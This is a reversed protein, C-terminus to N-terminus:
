TDTIAKLDEFLASIAAFFALCIPVYQCAVIIPMEWCEFDDPM